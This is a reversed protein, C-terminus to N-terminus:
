TSKKVLVPAVPTIVEPGHRRHPIHYHSNMQRLSSGSTVFATQVDADSLMPNFQIQIDRNTELRLQERQILDKYNGQVHAFKSELSALVRSSESLSDTLIKRGRSLSAIDASAVTLQL